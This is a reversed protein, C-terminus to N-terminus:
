RRRIIAVVVLATCVLGIVIINGLAPLLLDMASTKILLAEM